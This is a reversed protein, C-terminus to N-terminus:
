RRGYAATLEVETTCHNTEMRAQQWLQRWQAETALGNRVVLPMIREMLALYDALMLRGGRTARQPAARVTLTKIHRERLPLAAFYKDIYPGVGPHIGLRAALNVFIGTLTTLALSESRVVGFDRVEIWGNPATVRAMEALMGPWREIPMYASNARAMVLQFSGDPFDFPQLANGTLFTCNDPLTEGRKKAELNAVNIQEQNIDFGFVTANPFRRAMERAWRGTGCAVDLIALPNRVPATYDGEFEWRFMFHQLDLRNAELQGQGFIYEQEQRIQRPSIRRRRRFFAVM